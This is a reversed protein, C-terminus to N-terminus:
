IRAMAKVNKVRVTIKGTIPDKAEVKYTVGKNKWEHNTIQHEVLGDSGTSIKTIHALLAEYDIFTLRNNCSKGNPDHYKPCAYFMSLGGQKIEMDYDEEHCGCVLRINNWSNKEMM